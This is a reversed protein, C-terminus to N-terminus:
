IESLSELHKVQQCVHNLLEALFESERLTPIQPQHKPYPKKKEPFKTSM